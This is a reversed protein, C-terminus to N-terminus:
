EAHEEELKAEPSPSAEQQTEEVAEPAAETPATTEGEIDFDNINRAPELLRLEGKSASELIASISSKPIALVVSTSTGSLTPKQLVSIDSAIAITGDASVRYAVLMTGTGVQNNIGIKDNLVLSYAIHDDPISLGKAEDEFFYSSFVTNKAIPTALKKGVVEEASRIAGDPILETLWQKTEIEDLTIEQGVKLNRKSVVFSATEGGFREMAENRSLESQARIQEGYAFTLMLVLIASAGALILRFKLSM